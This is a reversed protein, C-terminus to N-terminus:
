CWRPTVDFEDTIDTYVGTLVEFGGSPLVNYESARMYRNFASAFIRFSIAETLLSNNYITGGTMESGNTTFIAPRCNTIITATTTEIAASTAINTTTSNSAVFGGSGGCVNYNYEFKPVILASHIIDALTMRGMVKTMNGRERVYADFQDRREWQPVGKKNAISKHKTYEILTEFAVEPVLYENGSKPLFGRYEIYAKDHAVAGDFVITGNEEFIRYGGVDSNSSGCPSCYCCWADFCTAELRAANQATPKVCGCSELDFTTLYEKKNIYQIGTSVLNVVPTTTVVYYEGNPLLTTTVTEDYETGGINIKNVVQTTQIDSCLQKPYCGCKSECESECGIDKALATPVIKPNIILPIKENCSDILYVGIEEKFDCPLAASNLNKNITLIAYRKPSKLTETTLKKIGRTAWATFQSQVREYDAYMDLAAQKVVKNLPIFTRLDQQTTKSM